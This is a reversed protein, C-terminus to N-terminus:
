NGKKKKVGDIPMSYFGKEKFFNEIEKSSKQKVELHKELKCGFKDEVQITLKQPQNVTIDKTTMGNSWTYNEFNEKVSIDIPKNDLICIYKPIITLESKRTNVKYSYTSLHLNKKNYVNVYYLNRLKEPCVKITSLESKLNEGFAKWEYRYGRKKKIGIEICESKCVEITEEFEEQCHVNEINLIFLLFIFLM